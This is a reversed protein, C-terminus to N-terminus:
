EGLGFEFLSMQDTDGLEKLVGLRDLDEVNTGNLKTRRLLDEKSKFLGAKRAEIVSDAASEGLGDIVIFPPILLGNEKDCIFKTADSKYLDINGFKYGREFMEICVEFMAHLDEDKKVSKQTRDNLLRTLQEYREKTKEFGALMTYIDYADCRVSFWVAYFELPYYVKFYGVRVAMTAYAVAHAKPYLYKIKNCANIYFEPIENKRLIPLYKEPIKKGKRVKEMTEFAVDSAVKHAILYKMIDDRAAVCNHLDMTGNRILDEQNHQWVNTGHALGAVAVVEAFTKPKAKLLIDRCTETGYEPLGSSGIKTKLYNESLNLAKTSTFLSIVKKDNLPITKVDVGTMLSMLRLALPDVHGLLDLKLLQKDLAAHYDLHTTLWDAEKDDAPYQIPTFEYISRGKPLVVIGGPHQGTTRKVDTCHSAMYAIREGPITSPDIGKYEFYNRVYGFATKDAVTSITGARYVNAEGFIDKTSNHAKAQYDSPFNLDIDPVKEADFGLFTEFPIDQGDHIMKEGCVPCKKEPLDSGSYCNPDDSYEFHRCKPCRYHPALPNVETIGYLFAALSSGVSGRSGVMYGDKNARAIIEHAIYYTVSYGHGNIGELEKNLRTVIDEPIQEGYLEHAKSFCADTLMKDSNLIEPKELDVHIPSMEECMDAIKNTNTIVIEKAKEEGLFEFADLMERTTRYHQDPNPLTPDQLRLPHFKGGIAKVAIFIDRSIKDEPNAYHVDGTAVVMKGLSDACEVIDMLYANITTPSDCLGKNILNIFNGPPQIEIYDYFDMVELLDQKSRTREFEFVEGNQCASGIILNERLRAIERKPIKPVEALYDIHSLSVLEFLDKVGAENKAIATVHMPRMHKLMPITTKLKALDSHMLNHNDKTLRHLMSLWVENLVKADYDARHADDDDYIDMGLNRSLNGLKHASADPFLYRSLSLTDIAPMKFAPRGMKRLTEALFGYDFTINHSVLIAGDMFELIKDIAQEITPQDKVMEDTIKTKKVIAAPIKREPNIFMQLTKVIQGNEFRIGGFETIKDYRTSLGTTELDFVVFTAKNLPIDVPNLVFPLEDNVMYFEVGYLAKVGTKQQAQQADPFSQVVGHDTIAIAKHGMNKALKFYDETSTVGDMASMKTHLHLEVRKEPEDDTRLEPGDMLEISRVDITLNNRYQDKSVYGRVRAWHENTLEEMDEPTINENELIKLSIGVDGKGLGCTLLTKGNRIIKPKDIGYLQGEVIVNTSDENLKSLDDVKKYPIKDKWSQNGRTNKEMEHRLETVSTQFAQLTREEDEDMEKKVEHQVLNAPKEPTKEAIKHAFNFSYGIFNLFQIYDKIIQDNKTKEEESDYFVTITSGIGVVKLNSNYRCHSYHWDNFLKTADSAMPKKLYSFKIQYPYKVTELHTLFEELLDYQWPTEKIIFMDIQNRNFTNRTVIDFDMDFRNVNEIGISTLFRTMKDNM